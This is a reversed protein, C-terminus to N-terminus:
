SRSQVSATLRGLVELSDSSVNYQTGHGGTLILTDGSSRTLAPESRVVAVGNSTVIAYTGSGPEIDRRSTDVLLYDRAYMGIFPADQDLRVLSVDPGANFDALFSRPFIAAMESEGNAPDIPVRQGPQATVSRETGFALYAPDENLIEALDVIVELAVPSGSEYLAISARSKRRDSPMAKSLDDQTMDLLRRAREIRGGVTTVDTSQEIEAAKEAMKSMSLNWSM